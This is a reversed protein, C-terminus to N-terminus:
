GARSLARRTHGANEDVREGSVPMVPTRRGRRVRRAPVSRALHSLLAWRHPHGMANLVKPADVAFAM